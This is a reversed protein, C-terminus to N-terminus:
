KRRNIAATGLVHDTLGQGRASSLMLVISVFQVLVFSMSITYGLTHLFASQLDMRAGTSQRLEIAMIRMGWTGSGTAITAVRYVFGLAFYLPVFFILGVFLTFPSLLLITLAIIASDIAWAILRKPAVSDYFEPQRAPDPLDSHMPDASTYTM